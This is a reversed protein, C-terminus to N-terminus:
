DTVFDGEKFGAKERPPSIRDVTTVLRGNM